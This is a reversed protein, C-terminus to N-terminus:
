TNLYKNLMKSLAETDFPKKICDAFHYKKPNMMVDSEAYGSSAFLIIDTNIDKIKRAIEHGPDDGPLTQDLICAIIDQGSAKDERIKNYAEQSTSTVIPVYGLSILKEKLIDNIYEQDDLILIHGSGMETEEETDAKYQIESDTSPLYIIFSSGKGEETQLDIKGDHNKIISFVTALGLGHGETKTSFFPDFIKERISEPIGSGTDTITLEIFPGEDQLLPCSDVNRGTISLEGGAPMAHIANIVLNDICQAIQTRECFCKRLNKDIDIHPTISTGRLSFNVSSHIIDDLSTVVRKEDGGKAFTLLQQTLSKANDSIKLVKDLSRIEKEANDKNLRNRVLEVYGFIGTLYNNFDHAIGGALIGLSELKQNRTIVDRLRSKETSDRFIIVVGRIHGDHDKIPAASDEIIFRRGKRSILTTHNPLEVSQGTELVKKAPNGCRINSFEDVIHFVQELPLGSAEENSWETLMETIPNIFIINGETDTSIVGDGICKLTVSLLEHDKELDKEARVRDTIDVFSVAFQGKVPSYASINFYTDTASSYNEFHKTQGTLAVEGFEKIWYPETHPFLELVTKGILQDAKMGRINEYAPNVSLFRYDVPKGEENLIIEYSAFGEIMTNFLDSYKTQEKKRRQIEKELEDKSATTLSLQDMMKNFSNSISGLEGSEHVDLRVLLDGSGIESMTRIMKKIPKMMYDSLFFVLVSLLLLLILSFMLIDKLGSLFPIMASGADYQEVIIWYENNNGDKHDISQSSGGFQFRKDLDLKFSSIFADRENDYYTNGQHFIIESLFDKPITRGTQTSQLEQVVNGGSRIVMTERNSMKQYNVIEELLKKIKFNVKLIGIIENGDFVPCVIGLVYDEVSEDFGRDDVYAEHFTANEMAKWWYKYYHTKTTIKKTAAIALGYKNTLFIEGIKDQLLMQQKEFSKALSNSLLDLVVQSDSSANAWETDIQDLESRLEDRSFSSFNENSKKLNEIVMQTQSLSQTVQIEHEIENKLHSILAEVRLDQNNKINKIERNKNFNFFFIASFLIALLGMTFLSLTIKYKLRM